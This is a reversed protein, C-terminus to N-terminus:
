FWFVLSPVTVSGLCCQLPLFTALSLPYHAACCEQPQQRPMQTSQPMSVTSPSMPLEAGAWPSCSPGACSISCLTPWHHFIFPVMIGSCQKVGDQALTNGSVCPQHTAQATDEVWLASHHSRYGLPGCRDLAHLYAQFLCLKVLM